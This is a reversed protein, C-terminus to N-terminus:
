ATKIPFLIIEQWMLSDRSAMNNLPVALIEQWTPPGFLDYFKGRDWQMTDVDLLDRVRIFPPVIGTVVEPTTAMQTKGQEIYRGNGVRWMLGEHIVEKASLLRRWVYSSNNGLDAEM